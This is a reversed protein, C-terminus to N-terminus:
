VEVGAIVDFTERLTVVKVTRPSDGPKIMEVHHGRVDRGGLRDQFAETEAHRLVDPVAVPRDVRRPQEALRGDVVDREGAPVARSQVVDREVGMLARLDQVDAVLEPGEPSRVRDLATRSPVADGVGEIEVQTVRVTM